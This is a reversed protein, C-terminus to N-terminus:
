FALAKIERRQGPGLFWSREGFSAVQRLIPAMRHLRLAAGRPRRRIDSAPGSGSSLGVLYVRRSNKDERGLESMSAADLTGDRVKLPPIPNVLAPSTIQVRSPARCELPTTTGVGRLAWGQRGQQPISARFSDFHSSSTNLVVLRISAQGRVFTEGHRHTQIMLTIGWHGSLKRSRVHPRVNRIPLSASNASMRVWRCSM